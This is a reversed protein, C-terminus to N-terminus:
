DEDSFIKIYKWPLMDYMQAMENYTHYIVKDQWMESAALVLTREVSEGYLKTLAEERYIGYRVPSLQDEGSRFWFRSM